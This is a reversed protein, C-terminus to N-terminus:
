WLLKSLETLSAVTLTGQPWSSTDGTVVFTTLGAGRASCVGLFSDEIAIAEESPYHARKCALLYPEPSPKGREVEEGSVVFDVYPSLHVQSLWRQTRTASNSTVVGVVCDNRKAKRLLDIAGPCPQVAGYLEDLIKIYESQLECEDQCLSHAVKLLRVVEHLPPGNLQDFETRTPSVGYRNLFSEYASRMVRISDALTGDLDLFM